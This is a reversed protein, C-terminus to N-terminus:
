HPQAVVEYVISQVAVMFNTSYLYSKFFPIKEEKEAETGDRKEIEQLQDVLFAETQKQMSEPAFFPLMRKSLDKFQKVCTPRYLQDKRGVLNWVAVPFVESCVFSDSGWVLKCM